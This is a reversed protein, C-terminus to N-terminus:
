AKSTFSLCFNVFLAFTEECVRFHPPVLQLRRGANVPFHVIRNVLISCMLLKRKTDARM